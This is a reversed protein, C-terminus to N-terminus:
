QDVENTFMHLQELKVKGGKIEKVVVVVGAVEVEKVVEVVVVGLAVVVGLVVKQLHQDKHVETVLRGGTVKKEQCGRLVLYVMKEEIEQDVMLEKHDMKEM